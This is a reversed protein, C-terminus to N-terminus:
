QLCMQLKGRVVGVVWGGNSKKWFDPVRIDILHLDLEWVIRRLGQCWESLIAVQTHGDKVWRHVVGLGPLQRTLPPVRRLVDACYEKWHYALQLPIKIRTGDWTLKNFSGFVDLGALTSADTIYRLHFSLLPLSLSYSFMMLHVNAIRKKKKKWQCLETTVSYEQFPSLTCGYPWSSAKVANASALPHLKCCYVTCNCSRSM